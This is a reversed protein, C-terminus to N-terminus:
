VFNDITALLHKNGLADSLFCCLSLLLISESITSGLAVAATPLVIFVIVQQVTLEERELKGIKGIQCSEQVPLGAM